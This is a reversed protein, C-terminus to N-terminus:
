PQVEMKTIGSGGVKNFLLFYKGNEISYVLHNRLLEPFEAWIKTIDDKNIIFISFQKSKGTPYAARIQTLLYEMTVFADYNKEDFYIIIAESKPIATSIVTNVDDMMLNMWYEIERCTGQELMKWCLAKLEADLEKDTSILLANMNKKMKDKGTLNIITGSCEISVMM